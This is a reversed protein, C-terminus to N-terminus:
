CCPQDWAWTRALMEQLRPTGGLIQEKYFFISFVSLLFTVRNQGPIIRVAPKM